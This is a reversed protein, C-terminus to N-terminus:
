LVGLLRRANTISIYRLSKCDYFASNGIRYLQESLRVSKLHECYSFLFDPVKTIGDEFVARQLKSSHFCGDAIKRLTVPLMVSDFETQMFAKKGLENVIHGDIESPIIVNKETGTYRTIRIPRRSKREFHWGQAIAEEYTLSIHPVDVPEPRPTDPRYIEEPKVTDDLDILYVEQDPPIIPTYTEDEPKQKPKLFDFLGM